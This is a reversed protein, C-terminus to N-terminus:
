RARVACPTGCFTMGHHLRWSRILFTRNQGFITPFDLCASSRQDESHNTNEILIEPSHDSSDHAETAFHLATNGFCRCGEGKCVSGQGNSADLIITVAWLKGADVAMMLPTGRFIRGHGNLLLNKVGAHSALVKLIDKKEHLIATELHETKPEAGHQLLLRVTDPSGFSCAADLPTKVKGCGAKSKLIPM